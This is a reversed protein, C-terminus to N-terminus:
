DSSPQSNKVWDWSTYKKADFLHHYGRHQETPIYLRDRPLLGRIVEVPFIYTRDFQSLSCVQRIVLGDCNALSGEAIRLLSFARRNMRRRQLCVQRVLLKKGNVLLDEHSIDQRIILREVQCGAEKAQIAVHRLLPEDVGPLSHMLEHFAKIQLKTAEVEDETLLSM